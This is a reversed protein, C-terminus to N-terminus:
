QTSLLGLMLIARYDSAPIIKQYDFLEWIKITKDHSGSVITNNDKNIAVSYVGNTHGNLTHTCQGSMLNWVKITNDMSGSIITNKNIGVSNVRDTHGKLTNICAGTLLNWIKITKDYSGSVITNNPIIVSAVSSIHGKLTNTCKGKINWTKITNKYCGSVITNNDIAVSMVRRKHGELTNICEAKNLDWIKINNDNAGSVIINNYIAVSAVRKQHGKLTKKCVWFHLLPIVDEQIYNAIHGWIEDPLTFKEQMKQFAFLQANLLPLKQELQGKIDANNNAARNVLQQLYIIRELRQQNTSYAGSCDVDEKYTNLALQLDESTIQEVPQIMDAAYGYDGIIMM